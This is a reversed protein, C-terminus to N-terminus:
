AVRIMKHLQQWPQLALQLKAVASTYNKAQFLKAGDIFDEVAPKVADECPTVEKATAAVVKLLGDVINCVTEGSKCGGEISSWDSLLTSLSTGISSTDKSVVAKEVAELDTWLDSAGVLVKVGFDLVTTSINAFKVATALTDLKTGIEEVGCASVSSALASLGRALVEVASKYKKAALDVAFDRFQLESLGVDSICTTLNVDTIGAKELLTQVIEKAYTSNITFNLARTNNPADSCKHKHSIDTGRFKCPDIL